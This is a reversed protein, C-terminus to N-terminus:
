FLTWFSCFLAVSNKPVLEGTYSVSGLQREATYSVSGLRLEMTYSVGGLGWEKTFYASSLRIKTWYRQSDKAFFSITGLYRKPSWSSSKSSFVLVWVDRSVTGKLYTCKNFIQKIHLLYSYMFIRLQETPKLVMVRYMAIYMDVPNFYRNTGINLKRVTCSM